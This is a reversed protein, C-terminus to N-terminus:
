VRLPHAYWGQQSRSCGRTCGKYYHDAAEDAVGFPNGEKSIAQRLSVRSFFCPELLCVRAVVHCLYCTQGLVSGVSVSSLQPLGGFIM